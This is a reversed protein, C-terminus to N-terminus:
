LKWESAVVAEFVEDSDIACSVGGYYDSFEAFSVIGNKSKADWVGLFGQLVQAESLRGQVVDPHAAANFKVQLDHVTAMGDGNADAKRFAKVVILKRRETMPGRIVEMIDDFAITGCRKTDFLEFIEDVVPQSVELRVNDLALVFERKKIRREGSEDVARFCRGIEKIGLEVNGGAYHVYASRMDGLLDLVRKPLTDILRSSRKWEHTPGCIALFTDDVFTVVFTKPGADRESLTRGLSLKAGVTFDAPYFYDDNPKLYVDFPLSPIFKPEANIIRVEDVLLGRWRPFYIGSFERHVDSGICSELRCRFKLFNSPLLPCFCSM